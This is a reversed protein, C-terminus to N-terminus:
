IEPDAGKSLLLKFTSSDEENCIVSHHLCTMGDGDVANVDSGLEILEKITVESFNYQVAFMLPTMKQKDEDTVKVQGSRILSLLKSENKSDQIEEYLEHMSLDKGKLTALYESDDPKEPQPVSKAFPNQQGYKDVNIEQIVGQAVGKVTEMFQADCQAVLIIYERQCQLGSKEVQQVWAAYREPKTKRKNDEFEDANGENYQKYLSYLTLAVQNNAKGDKM